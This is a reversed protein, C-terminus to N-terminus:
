RLRDIERRIREETPHDDRRFADWANAMVGIGWGLIPFIPWFFPGGTFAWVTVLFLNVTVYVLLHVRFDAQKRLRKVARERLEAEATTSGTTNNVSM